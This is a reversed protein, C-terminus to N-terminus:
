SGYRAGLSRPHPPVIMNELFEPRPLSPESDEIPFGFRAQPNVYEDHPIRVDMFASGSIAFFRDLVANIYIPEPLMFYPINFANALYDYRPFSLGNKTGTGYHDGNLWQKETKACMAYGGNNILIIRIPLSLAKITALEQVNMMLSGDGIIATVPRRGLALCGGISAPLAWGMATNNFDHYIRQSKVDFGQMIWAITCGTDAFIHEKEPMARSLAKMFAYPKITGNGPTDSAPYKVKWSKVREMWDHFPPLYRIKTNLETVFEKADALIPMTVARNFMAFKGLEKQDIDVVVTKAERAFDTMKSGTERTSLRSGVALIFDANQITFNGARTGHTGFTGALLPNDGSILDKGGWSTLVPIGLRNVLELAEKEAKALRVGWGLILVPREAKKLLEIIRPIKHQVIKIPETEYRSYHILKDPDVEARQLDDPIDLLVPGPRGSKALHTAYELEYAVYNPDKLQAAHKTIPRVMPLIDTEQFGFQRVGTSGKMNYTAVQGTIYIVPVSDFWAGAIGTILNTAGPGSTAIACGLSGTVRSYADAAMAGAQEHHVYVPRIDDRKALSHLLHISAGGSVIFVHRIGQEALYRAVYDSLKM